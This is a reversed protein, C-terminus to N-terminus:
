STETGSSILAMREREQTRHFMKAIVLRAGGIADLVFPARLGAGHGHQGGARALGDEEGFDDPAALGAAGDDDRVPVLQHLLGLFLDLMEGAQIALHLHRVQGGRDPEEGAHRDDHGADLREDGAARALAHLLELGRVEGRQDDIFKMVRGRGGIALHKIIERLLLGRLRFTRPTVAVGSRM